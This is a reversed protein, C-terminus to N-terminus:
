SPKVDITSSMFEHKNPRLPRRSHKPVARGRRIIFLCSAGYLLAWIGSGEMKEELHSLPGFFADFSSADPFYPFKNEAQNEEKEIMDEHVESDSWEGFSILKDGIQLSRKFTILANSSTLLDEGLM